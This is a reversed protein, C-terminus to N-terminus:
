SVDKPSLSHAPRRVTAETVGAPFPWASYLSPLRLAYSLAQGPYQAARGSANGLAPSPARSPQLLAAQFTSGNGNDGSDLLLVPPSSGGMVAQLQTLGGGPTTWAAVAANYTRLDARRPDSAALWLLAVGLLAIPPGSFLACRYADGVTLGGDQADSSYQGGFGDGNAIFM